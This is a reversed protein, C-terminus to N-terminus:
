GRKKLFRQFTKQRVLQHYLLGLVVSGVTLLVWALRGTGLGYRKGLLEAWVNFLFVEFSADGLCRLPTLLHSPCRDCLWAIGVCLAPAILVFPHWYMAYTLLADPRRDFCLMLVALAGCALLAMVVPLVPGDAKKGWPRAFVMGLIFVPLRSVPMYKLSGVFLFGLAFAAALALLVRLWYTRGERLWLYLVPALLLSAALASVYWNIMLPADFFYGLMLVNGLVTGLAQGLGMRNLPIMVALWLICFPWYSPLIRLVRRKWYGKLGEPRSLSHYLGYGSLFFFLDVGGYGIKQVDYILGDLGFQAHFFVVWLIAFGKIETRHANLLRQMTTM